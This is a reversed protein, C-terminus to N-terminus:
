ADEEELLKAIEDDLMAGAEEDSLDEIRDIM